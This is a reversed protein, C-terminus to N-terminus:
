SLRWFLTSIAPQNGGGFCEDIEGWTTSELTWFAFLHQILILYRNNLVSFENIPRFVTLHHKISVEILMLMFRHVSESLIKNNIKGLVSSSNNATLEILSFKSILRQHDTYSDQYLGKIPNQVKDLSMHAKNKTDFLLATEIIYKLINYEKKTLPSGSFKVRVNGIPSKYSVSYAHEQLRIKVATNSSLLADKMFGAPSLNDM